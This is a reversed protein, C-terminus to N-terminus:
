DVIRDQDDLIYRAPNVPRGNQRIEYHLHPGTTRGTSGVEGLVTGREVEDGPKVHIEGAHAYITVFGNGHDVKITLGFDGNRGTFTVAGRAPAIFPTGHAACYDFGEHRSLRGTFPDRRKGFGSSLYYEGAVPTITPVRELEDARLKLEDIILRYSNEQFKLHRDLAELRQGVDALDDSLDPSLDERRVALDPGGVGLQRTEDDLPELGALLRARNEMDVSGDLRSELRVLEQQFEALRGHLVGSEHRVQRYKQHVEHANWYVGGACLLLGLIATAAAGLAYVSFAPIRFRRVARGDDPMILISFTKRAM